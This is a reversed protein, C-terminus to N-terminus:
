RIELRPRLTGAEAAHRPSPPAVLCHLTQRWLWRRAAAPSSAARVRFEEELDGTIYDRWQPALRLALLRMALRPPDHTM